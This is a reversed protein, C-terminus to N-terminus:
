KEPDFFFKFKKSLVLADVSFLQMIGKKYLFGQFDTKSGSFHDNKLVLFKLTFVPLDPGSMQERIQAYFSFASLSAVSHNLRGSSCQVSSCLVSPLHTDM